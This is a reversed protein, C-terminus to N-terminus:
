NQKLNLMVVWFASAYKIDDSWRRFIDNLDFLKGGEEQRQCILLMPMNAVKGSLNLGAILDSVVKIIVGIKAMNAVSGLISFHQHLVM